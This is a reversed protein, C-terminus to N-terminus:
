CTWCVLKPVADVVISHNFRQLKICKLTM